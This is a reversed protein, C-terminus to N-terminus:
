SDCVQAPWWITDDADSLAGAIDLRVFVLVIDEDLDITDNQAGNAVPGSAPARWPANFPPSNNTSASADRAVQAPEQRRHNDSCDTLSSLDSESGSTADLTLNSFKRKKSPGGEARSNRLTPDSHSHTRRHRRQASPPPGDLLVVDEDSDSLLSIPEPQQRGKGKTPPPHPPKRKRQVPAPKPRPKQPSPSASQSRLPLTALRKASPPGSITNSRSKGPSRKKKAYTVKFQGKRATPEGFSPGAGNEGEDSSELQEAALRTAKKAAARRSTTAANPAKDPAM